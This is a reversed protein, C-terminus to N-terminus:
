INASKTGSEVATLGILADDPTDDGLWAVLVIGEGLVEADLELV